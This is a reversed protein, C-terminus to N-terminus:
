QQQSSSKITKHAAPPVKTFFLNPPSFRQVLLDIYVEPPQAQVLKKQKSGFM